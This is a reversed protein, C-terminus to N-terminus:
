KSENTVEPEGLGELAKKRNKMAEVRNLESEGLEMLLLERPGVVKLGIASVFEQLPTYDQVVYCFIPLYKVFATRKEDKKTWSDIQATTIEAEDDDKAILENMKEAIQARSIKSKKIALAISSKVDIMYTHFNKVFKLQEPM